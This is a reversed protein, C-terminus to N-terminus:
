FRRTFILADEKPNQYFNKREGVAEMLFRKYLNIAGCNSKRVELSFFALEKQLSYECVKTLLATAVGQKEAEKKTAINTIYGEDAVVSLGVYGLTKNEKKALFFVTNNDMASKISNESWPASFREKEIEAIFPIDEKTALVVNIPTIGFMQNIGKVIQKACDRYVSLDCGFPDDIGLVEIKNQNVGFTILTQKHGDSMCVIKDAEELLYPNVTRSLHATIDVGMEGMALVSNQSVQDGSFGFGASKATIDKLKLSNLYGEAMPSRCTNGTCVFLINM